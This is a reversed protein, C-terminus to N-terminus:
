VTFSEGCSCSSVAHPNKFVFKQSLLSQEFDLESGAIYLISKPDLYFKAGHAEIVPENPKPAESTPSLDYSMGSCGGALVRVRVAGGPHGSKELLSLARKAARETVTLLAAKM